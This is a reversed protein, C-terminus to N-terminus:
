TVLNLLTADSKGEKGRLQVWGLGVQRVGPAVNVFQFTQHLGCVKTGQRLLRHARQRERGVGM